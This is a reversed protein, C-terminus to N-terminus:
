ELGDENTGAKSAMMPADEVSSRMRVRENSKDRNIQQLMDLTKRIEV